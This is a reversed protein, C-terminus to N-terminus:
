RQIGMESLILEQKAFMTEEEAPTQHDYGLLHLFGHIALFFLEREFSHGYDEAQQKAKPISIIIDGLLDEDDMPFSLVDTAKDIGRHIRNIEQIKANDCFTVSLEGRERGEMRAALEFMQSMRQEDQKSFPFEIDYIYEIHLTM